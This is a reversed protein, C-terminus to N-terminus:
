MWGATETKIGADRFIEEIGALEEKTMPKLGLSRQPSTIPQIKAEGMAHYPLLHITDSGLEKLFRIVERINEEQTTYQPILPMRPVVTYGNKVLTALNKRILGNPRGTHRSHLGSNMIKIDYLVMDALRISEKVLESNFYGCTEIVTHISNERCLKLFGSLFRHQLLPEGGSLTIGGHSESFFARDKVIEDFLEGATYYRGVSTLAGTPCADTCKGCADCSERKIRPPRIVDIANKECVSTCDRSLICRSEYFAIERHPKISEPNQCWACQLPCGKFFIVTRIGPGDHLSFRQVDFVLARDGTRYVSDPKM